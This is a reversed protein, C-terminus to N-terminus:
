EFIGFVHGMDYHRRKNVPRWRIGGCNKEGDRIIKPRWSCLLDHAATTTTTTNIHLNELQTLINHKHM